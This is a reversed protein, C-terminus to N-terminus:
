NGAKKATCARAKFESKKKKGLSQWENSDKGYQASVQDGAGILANHYKWQAAVLAGRAACCFLRFRAQKSETKFAGCPRSAIAQPLAGLFCARRINLGQFPSIIIATVL